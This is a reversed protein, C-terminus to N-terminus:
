RRESERGGVEGKGLVFRSDAHWCSEARPADSALRAVSPSGWVTRASSQRTGKGRLDSWRRRLVSVLREYWASMGASVCRCLERVDNRLDRAAGRPETAGGAPLERWWAGVPEEEEEARAHVSAQVRVATVTALDGVEGRRTRQGVRMVDKRGLGDHEGSKIHLSRTRRRSM